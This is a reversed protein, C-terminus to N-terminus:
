YRRLTVQSKVGNETMEGSWQGDALPQLAISVGGAGSFGVTLATDARSLYDVVGYALSGAPRRLDRWVGELLGRGSAPDVFQFTYLGKGDAGYLTWRGDLPGQQSQAAAVSARIRSDWAMDSYSPPSDPSVGTQEVSPGAPSPAAPPPSTQAAAGSALALAATLALAARRM